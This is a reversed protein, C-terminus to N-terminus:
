CPILAEAGALETRTAIGKLSGLWWAGAPMVCDDMLPRITSGTERGRGAARQKWRRGGGGGVMKSQDDTAYNKLM